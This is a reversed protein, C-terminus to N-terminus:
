SPNCFRCTATTPHKGVSDLNRGAFHEVMSPGPGNSVIIGRSGDPFQVYFPEASPLTGMTWESDRGDTATYLSM